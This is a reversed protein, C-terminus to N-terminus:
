VAHIKKLQPPEFPRIWSNELFPSLSLSSATTQPVSTEWYLERAFGRYPIQSGPLHIFINIATCNKSTKRYVIWSKIPVFGVNAGNLPSYHDLVSNPLTLEFFLILLHLPNFGWVQICSRPKVDGWDRSETYTLKFEFARSEHRLVAHLSPGSVVTGEKCLRFDFFFCKQLRFDIWFTVFYVFICEVPLRQFVCAALAPLRRIKCCAISLRIVLETEAQLVRCVIGCFPRSCIDCSSGIDYWRKFSAWM